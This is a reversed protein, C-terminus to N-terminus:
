STEEDDGGGKAPTARYAGSRMRSRMVRRFEHPHRDYCKEGSWGGGGQRM